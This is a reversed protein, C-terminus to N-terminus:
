WRSHHLGADAFRDFLPATTGTRRDEQGMLDTDPLRNTEVRWKPLSQVMASMTRHLALPPVSIEKTGGRM